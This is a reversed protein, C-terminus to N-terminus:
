SCFSLCITCHSGILCVVPYSSEPYATCITLILFRFLSPHFHLQTICHQITHYIPHDSYYISSPPRTFSCRATYPLNLAITTLLTDSCLSPIHHLNLHDVLFIFPANNAFYHADYSIDNCAMASAQGRIHTM